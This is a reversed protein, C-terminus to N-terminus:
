NPCSLSCCAVVEVIVFQHFAQITINGQGIYPTKGRHPKPLFAAALVRRLFRQVQEVTDYQSACVFAVVDEVREGSAAGRANGGVQEPAIERANVLALFVKLQALAATLFDVVGLSGRTHEALHLFIGFLSGDEDVVGALFQSLHHNLFADAVQTGAIRLARQLDCRAEFAHVVEHQVCPAVIGAHEAEFGFAAELDPRALGEHLMAERGFVGRIVDNEKEVVALLDRKGFVDVKPLADVSVAGFDARQAIEDPESIEQLSADHRTKKPSVFLM